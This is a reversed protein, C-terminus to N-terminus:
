AQQSKEAERVAHAVKETAMDDSIVASKERIHNKFVQVTYDTM